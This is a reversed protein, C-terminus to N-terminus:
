QKEIEAQQEKLKEESRSIILLSLGRQALRDAFARGIGSTTGTIVAWKGMKRPDKAPQILRRYIQLGVRVAAFLLVAQGLLRFYDTVGAVRILVVVVTLPLVINKGIFIFFNKVKPDM